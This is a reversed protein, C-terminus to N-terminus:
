EAIEEQVAEQLNEDAGPTVSTEAAEVGRIVLVSKRAQNGQNAYADSRSLDKVYTIRAEETQDKDELSRLALSLYGTEQALRLKQAEDLSVELSISSPLEKKKGDETTEGQARQDVALVKVNTLLTETVVEDKEQDDEEVDAKPIPHTVLVDVRDGPFIFGAVAAIGDSAITAVRKGPPLAAALFGPDSPNALKSKLIPENQQFSGRAVMGIVEKSGAGATIFGDVVLHKPWPQPNLMDSAIVEGLPIPREAVLVDVTEVDSAGSTQVIPGNGPAPDSGGLVNFVVIGVVLALVFAIIVGVFRM